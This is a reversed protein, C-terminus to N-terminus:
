FPFCEFRGNVRRSFDGLNDCSGAIFVSAYREFNIIQEEIAANNEFTPFLKFLVNVSENRIQDRRIGSGHFDKQPLAKHSRTEFSLFNVMKGSCFTKIRSFKSKGKEFFVKYYQFQGQSGFPCRFNRIFYFHCFNEFFLFSKDNEVPPKM